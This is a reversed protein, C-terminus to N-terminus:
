TSKKWTFQPILQGAASLEILTALRKERTAEQKASVVWWVAAKRYSPPRSAFFEEAAPHEALRAAYAAPLEVSRQEFSYVGSRNERRLAFAALGAERMRGAATLVEIRGVNVASWISTPKRPTFRITFARDDLSKRLGDIWGFCLAEDVTEPWTVSPEGTGKKFYGVWLEPATAHHEELWARFDAPTPFFRVDAPAM